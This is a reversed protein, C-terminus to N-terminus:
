KQVVRLKISQEYTRGGDTTVTNTLVSVTGASGGSVWVTASNEDFTNPPTSISVDGQAVAWASATIEDDGVVGSWDIRYDLLEAPDKHEVPIAM